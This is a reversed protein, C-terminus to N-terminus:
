RFEIRVVDGYKMNLLSSASGHSIAIELYGADNFLALLNGEGARFYDSSITKITEGIRRLIIEFTRGNARRNITAQTINTVLNGFSDVYIVSGKIVDDELTPRLTMSGRFETIREGMKNIKGGNVLYAASSGINAATLLVKEGKSNNVCYIEAPPDDFLLGFFGDDPGLFYHGEYSLALLFPPEKAQNCIAAVHVSGQPFRSWVNKLVFSGHIQDFKRIQHSIDVIVAKSFSTLIEGKLAGSYHDSNGWDTTLTIVAMGSQEQITLKPITLFISLSRFREAPSRIKIVTKIVPLGTSLSVSTIDGAFGEGGTGSVM